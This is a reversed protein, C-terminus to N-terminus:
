LRENNIRRIVENLKCAINMFIFEVDQFNEIEMESIDLEKIKEAMKGVDTFHDPEILEVEEDLISSIYYYSLYNNFLDDEPSDATDKFLSAFMKSKYRRYTYIDGKFKVKTGEKLEGKSIMNLIDILRYKSM